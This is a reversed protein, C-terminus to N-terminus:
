YRTGYFGLDDLGCDDLAEHFDEIQSEEYVIVVREYNWMIQNFDGICLWASNVQTVLSRLWTWFEGRRNANPEGYIGTM